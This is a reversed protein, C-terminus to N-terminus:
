MQLHIGCMSHALSFTDQTRQPYLVFRISTHKGIAHPKRHHLPPRSIPNRNYWRQRLTQTHRHQRHSSRQTDPHLQRELVSTAMAQAQEAQFVHWDFLKYLEQMCLNNRLHQSFNSSDRCRYQISSLQHMLERVNAKVTWRNPLRIPPPDDPLLSLRIPAKKKDVTFCQNAKFYNELKYLTSRTVIKYVERPFAQYDKSKAIYSSGKNMAQLLDIVFLQESVYSSIWSDGLQTLARAHNCLKLEGKDNNSKRLSKDIRCLHM